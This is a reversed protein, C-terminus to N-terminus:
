KGRNRLKLRQIDGHIRHHVLNLTGAYAANLILQLRAGTAMLFNTELVSGIEEVSEGVRDTLFDQYYLGTRSKNTGTEPLFQSFENRAALQDFSWRRIVNSLFQLRNEGYAFDPTLKYTLDTRVPNSANDLLQFLMGTYAGPIPLEISNQGVAIPFSQEMLETNWYEWNPDDVDRRLVEVRLNRCKLTGADSFVTAKANTNITLVPNSPYRTAPLLLASSVPDSIQPHAFFIPWCLSFEKDTQNVTFATARKQYFYDLGGIIQRAYEVLGVGSVDVVNRNTAGDAINLQVRSLLEYNSRRPTLAVTAHSDFFDGTIYIAEIPFERSLEVRITQGFFSDGNLAFDQSTTLYDARQKFLM